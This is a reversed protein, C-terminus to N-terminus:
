IKAKAKSKEALQQQKKQFAVIPDGRVFSDALASTARTAANIWAERKPQAILRKSELISRHNNRSLAEDWFAKADQHFTADPFVRNALGWSLMDAATIKRSLMTLENARKLGISDPFIVGCGLEPVLGLENFVIQAWASEAALVFDAVGLFWAAGGGVAPGNLAVCIVKSSDIMARIMELSIALNPIQHLRMDIGQPPGGASSSGTSAVGKVDAGSSFFRGNGTIMIVVVDPLKEAEHIAAILEPMMRGGFSNLSKPRNFRITYLPGEHEVVIDQYPM